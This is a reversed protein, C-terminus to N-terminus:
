TSVSTKTCLPEWARSSRPYISVMRGGAALYAENRKLVAAENDPAAALLCLAPRTELLHSSPLIPLRSGPMFLSAKRPDDDIVCTLKDKLGLLNLFTVARHGAGLM